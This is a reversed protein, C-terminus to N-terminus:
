LMKDVAGGLGLVTVKMCFLLTIINRILDMLTVESFTPQQGIPNVKIILNMMVGLFMFVFLLKLGASLTTTLPNMGWTERAVPILNAVLFISTLAVMIMLNVVAVFVNIMFLVCVWFAYVICWALVLMKALNMFMEGVWKLLDGSVLAGVVKAGFKIKDFVTANPALWLKFDDPKISYMIRLYYEPIGMMNKWFLNLGFGGSDNNVLSLDPFLQRPLDDLFLQQAAYFGWSIWNTLLFYVTGLVLFYRICEFMIDKWPTRTYMGRLWIYTIMLASLVGMFPTLLGLFGILGTEIAGRLMDMYSDWDIVVDYFSMRDMNMNGCQMEGGGSVQMKNINNVSSEFKAAVEAKSASGNIAQRDAASISGTNCANTISNLKKEIDVVYHRSEYKNYSTHGGNYKLMMTGLGEGFKQSNGGYNKYRTMWHKMEAYGMGISFDIDTYLRSFNANTYASAESPKKKNGTMFSGTAAVDKMAEYTVQLVGTAKYKNPKAMTFSSERMAMALGVSLPIGTQASYKEFAAAMARADADSLKPNKAKIFDVTPVKCSSAIAQTSGGSLVCNGDESMIGGEPPLVISGDPNVPTYGNAMIVDTISLTGYYYKPPFSIDRVKVSGVGKSADIIKVTGNPNKGLFVMVHGYTGGPKPSTVILDGPKLQNLGLKKTYKNSRMSATDAYGKGFVGKLQPVGSVARMIFHSCDTTVNYNCSGGICYKIGIMSHAKNIISQRAATEDLTGKNAYSIISIITMMLGLGVIKFFKKMFKNEKRKLYLVM